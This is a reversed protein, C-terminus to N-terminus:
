EAARAAAKAAAKPAFMRTPAPFGCPTGDTVEVENEWPLRYTGAVM